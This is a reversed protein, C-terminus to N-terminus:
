TYNNSGNVDFSDNDQNSIPLYALWKGKNMLMTRTDSYPTLDKLYICEVYIYICM